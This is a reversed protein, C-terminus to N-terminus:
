DAPSTARLHRVTIQALVVTLEHQWDSSAASPPPAASLPPQAARAAPEAWCRMWGAVGCCRLIRLGLPDTALIQRDEVVHRRLSEYRQTWLDSPLPPMTM